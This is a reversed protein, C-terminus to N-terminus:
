LHYFAIGNKDLHYEWALQRLGMENFHSLAQAYMAQKSYKLGNSIKVDEPLGTEEWALREVEAAALEEKTMQDKIAKVALAYKAFYAQTGAAAGGAMESALASVEAKRNRGIVQGITVKRPNKFKPKSATNRGHNYYWTKIQQL